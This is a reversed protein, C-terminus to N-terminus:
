NAAQGSVAGQQAPKKESFYKGDKISLRQYKDRFYCLMDDLGCGYGLLLYFGNELYQSERKYEEIVTALIKVAQPAQEKSFLIVINEIKTDDSYSFDVASKQSAIRGRGDPMFTISVDKYAYNDYVRDNTSTAISLVVLFILGVIVVAVYKM